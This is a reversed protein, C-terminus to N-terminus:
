PMMSVATVKPRGLVCGDLTLYVRRNTSYATLLVSDFLQYGPTASDVIYGDTASCSDPNFFAIDLQVRMLPDVQGVTLFTIHGPSSNLPTASISSPLAALLVSSTIAFFKAMRSM